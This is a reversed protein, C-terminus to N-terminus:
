RKWPMRQYKLFSQMDEQFNKYSMRRSYLSYGRKKQPAATNRGCAREFSLVSGRQVTRGKCLQGLDVSTTAIIRNDLTQSRELDNQILDEYRIARYLRYQCVPTLKEIEAILVTGFIEWQLDARRFEIDESAPNGFIRDM